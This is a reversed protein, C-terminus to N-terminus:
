ELYITRSFFRCKGYPDLLPWFGYYHHSYEQSQAKGPGAGYWVKSGQFM